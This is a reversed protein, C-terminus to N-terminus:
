AIHLQKRIGADLLSAPLLTHMLRLRAADIILAACRVPFVDRDIATARPALKARQAGSRTQSRRFVDGMNAPVNGGGVGCASM